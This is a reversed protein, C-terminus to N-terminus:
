GVLEQAIYERYRHLMRHVINFVTGITLDYQAAVRALTAGPTDFYATIIESELWSHKVQKRVKRTLEWQMELEAKIDTVTDATDHINENYEASHQRYKKYFPSTTSNIQKSCINVFLYRLWKEQYARILKDTDKLLILMVEQTLDAQWQQPVKREIYQMYPGSEDMIETCIQTIM